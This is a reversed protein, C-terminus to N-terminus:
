PMAICRDRQPHVGMRIFFAYPPGTLSYPISDLCLVCLFSPALNLDQAAKEHEFTNLSTNLSL